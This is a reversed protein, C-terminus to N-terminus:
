LVVKQITEDKKLIKILENHLNYLINLVERSINFKILAEDTVDSLTPFMVLCDDELLRENSFFQVAGDPDNSTFIVNSLKSDWIDFFHVHYDHKSLSVSAVVNDEGLKMTSSFCMYNGRIPSPYEYFEDFTREANEADFAVLKNYKSM